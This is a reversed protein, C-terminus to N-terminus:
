QSKKHRGTSKIPKKKFRHLHEDPNIVKIEVDSKVQGLLSDKWIINCTLIREIDWDLLINVDFSVLAKFTRKM